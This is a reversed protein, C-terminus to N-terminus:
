NGREVDTQRCVYGIFCQPTDATPVWTPETTEARMCFAPSIVYRDYTIPGTRLVIAGQSAVLAHAQQCSMTLTSPGVQALAPTCFAILYAALPLVIM